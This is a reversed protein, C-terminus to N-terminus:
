GAPHSRDEIEWAHDLAHWAIRGAAYRATWTRGALASGDSPRRLVELIAARLADRAAVDDAAPPRVRIGLERAYAADAEAVHVVIASTDRGGGRPGKRLSVPATGAVADLREWAAAVLRALRAAEAVSAPRRDADLIRGPVGFETSANGPASEAVVPEVGATELVEGAARAVEAYRDAYASLAELAVVVSKGSRALGPWDIARAFVRKPSVELAVSIRDAM